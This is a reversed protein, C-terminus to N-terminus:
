KIGFNDYLWQASDKCSFNYRGIDEKLPATRLFEDREEKSEFEIWMMKSQSLNRIGSTLYVEHSEGASLSLDLTHLQGFEGSEYSLLAYYGRLAQDTNNTIRCRYGAGVDNDEDYSFQLNLGNLDVGGDPEPNEPEATGSEDKGGWESGQMIYLDAYEGTIPDLLRVQWMMQGETFLNLPKIPMFGEEGTLWVGGYRQFKGDLYGIEYTEGIIYENKVEFTLSTSSDVMYCTFVENEGNLDMMYQYEGVYNHLTMCADSVPMAVTVDMGSPAALAPVATAAASLVLAAALTTVRKLMSM